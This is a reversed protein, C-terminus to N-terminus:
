ALDKFKTVSFSRLKLFFIIFLFQIGLFFADKKGLINIKIIDFFSEMKRKDFKESKAM